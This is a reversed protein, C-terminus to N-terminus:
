WKRVQTLTCQLAKLCCRPAEMAFRDMCLMATDQSGALTLWVASSMAKGTTLCMSCLYIYPWSIEQQCTCLASSYPAPHSACLFSCSLECPSNHWECLVCCCLALGIHPFLGSPGPSWGGSQKQWCVKCPALFTVTELNFGVVLAWLEPCRCNRVASLECPLASGLCCPSQLDWFNLGRM